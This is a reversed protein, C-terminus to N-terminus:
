SKFTGCERTAGDDQDLTCCGVDSTREAENEQYQVERSLSPYGGSNPTALPVEHEILRLRRDTSNRDYIEHGLLYIACLSLAAILLQHLTTGYVTAVQWMGQADLQSATQALSM